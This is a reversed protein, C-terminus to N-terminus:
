AIAAVLVEAPCSTPRDSVQGDGLEVVRWAGDERRVVDATAFPLGLGAVAPGLVTLVLDPVVPEEDTTDPHATQLVCRGDRWWTRTEAGVLREFRRVVYGETFADDRLERFCAALRRASGPDAVDPLFSYSVSLPDLPCATCAEAGSGPGTGAAM